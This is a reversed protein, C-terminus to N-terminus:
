ATQGPAPPTAPGAPQEGRFAQRLISFCGIVGFALAVLLQVGVQALGAGSTTDRILATWFASDTLAEVASIGSQQTWLPLRSSALGAVFALLLTVITIVTVRIAGGRGVRGGSGFRYLWVAAAAIAFAVISAIFGFSWIIVWLAVGAPIALLAMVTGRQANEPPLDAAGSPPTIGVYQEPPTIAPPTTAPWTGAPQAPATPDAPAPSASADRDPESEPAPNPTANSM